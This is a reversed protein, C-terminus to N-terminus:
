AWFGKEWAERAADSVAMCGTADQVAFEPVAATIKCNRNPGKEGLGMVGGVDSSWYVCMRANKLTFVKNTLPEETYGFFVGRHATTVVVAREGNKKNAKSM